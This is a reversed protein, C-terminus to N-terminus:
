RCYWTVSVLEPERNVVGESLDAVMAKWTQNCRAPDSVCGDLKESQYCTRRHKNKTIIRSGRIKLQLGPM